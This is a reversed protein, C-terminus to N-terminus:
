NFYAGKPGIGVKLSDILIGEYDYRFMYGDTVFDKVQFCYILGNLPDAEMGYFNRNILPNVPADNDNIGMSYIGESEDFLITNGNNYVSIHRIFPNMDGKQGIIISKKITNDSSNIIVLKSDSEEIIETWGADYVQKGRCLVWINNNADVVMDIPRDGVEITQVLENTNIDIVSVTNDDIWGGSNAVYINDGSRVMTEPGNGVLISDIITLSETNVVYVKGAMNGNSIYAQNQGAEIIYRPYSLNEVVGVSMFTTLDVVEIKRSGNVVLFGKNGCIGFSQLQDGPSRGNVIGFLNNTIKLSDTDFYSLSGNGGGFAGENIIFVGHTFGTDLDDINEKNCGSGAFVLVLVLVLLTIKRKM